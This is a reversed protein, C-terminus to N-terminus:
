VKLERVLENYKDKIRSIRIEAILYLVLLIPIAAMLGIMIEINYSAILEQLQIM